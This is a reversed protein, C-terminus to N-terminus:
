DVQVLYHSLIIIERFGQLVPKPHKSRCAHKSKLDKPIKARRLYLSLLPQHINQQKLIQDPDM